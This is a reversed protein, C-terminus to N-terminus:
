LKEGLQISFSLPEVDYTDSNVSCTLILESKFYRKLNTITIENEGVDCKYYSNPSVTGELYTEFSIPQEVVEDNNNYVYCQYVVSDGEYILSQNPSLKLYYNLNNDDNIDTNDDKNNDKDKKLYYDAIYHKTGDEDISILDQEINIIDRELALVLMPISNPDTTYKAGVRFVEKVKYVSNNSIDEFDLAGLIFRDSMKINKTYENFQVYVYTESKPTNIVDNFYSITYQPNYDLVAPEYWETTNNNILMGLQCNCRRIIGNSGLRITDFNFDLWTCKTQSDSSTFDEVDFLYKRGLLQKHRVDKFVINKYDNSLKNGTEDYASMIRVEINRYNPKGVRYGQTNYNDIEEQIDVVDTAFNWAKDVKNQFGEIWYNDNQFNKTLKSKFLMTTNVHNTTDQIKGLTRM